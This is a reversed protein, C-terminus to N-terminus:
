YSSAVSKIIIWKGNVKKLTMDQRLNWWSKGIGFPSALTKTKGIVKAINDEISIDITEHKSDFYKLEGNIVSDIYENKTQIKGTMHYLKYDDDLIENLVKKDKSISADSLKIYLEKIFDKDEKM